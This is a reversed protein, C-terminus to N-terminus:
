NGNAERFFGLRERYFSYDADPFLRPMVDLFEEMRHLGDNPVAAFNENFYPDDFDCDELDVFFYQWGIFGKTELLREFYQPISLTLPYKEGDDNWLWLHEKGDRLELGVKLTSQLSEPYHDFLYLQSIFKDFRGRSIDFDFKFGPSELLFSYNNISTEGGFHRLEDDKHSFKWLIKISSIEYFYALTLEELVIGFDEQIVEVYMKSLPNGLSCKELSIDRHESIAALDSDLRDKYKLANEM